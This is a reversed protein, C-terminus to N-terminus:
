FDLHTKIKSVVPSDMDSMIRLHYPSKSSMNISRSKFFFIQILLLDVLIINVVNRVKVEGILTLQLM